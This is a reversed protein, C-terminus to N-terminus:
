KGATGARTLGSLGFSLYDFKGRTNGRAIQVVGNAGYSLGASVIKQSMTTSSSLLSVAGAVTGWFNEPEGLFALARVRNSTNSNLYAWDCTKGETVYNKVDQNELSGYLWGPRGAASLGGEIWDSVPCIIMWM